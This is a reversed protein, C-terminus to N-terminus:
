SVRTFDGQSGMKALYQRIKWDTKWITQTFIYAGHMCELMVERSKKISNFVGKMTPLLPYLRVRKQEVLERAERQWLGVVRYHHVTIVEDKLKMQFPPTPLKPTEFPCLLLQRVPLRHKHHLMIAYEALRVEVKGYLGRTGM